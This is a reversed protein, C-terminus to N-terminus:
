RRIGHQRDILSEVRTFETYQKNEVALDLPPKLPQFETPLWDPLRSGTSVVFLLAEFEARLETILEVDPLQGDPSPPMIVLVPDEQNRLQNELIANPQRDSTRIGGIIDSLVAERTRSTETVEVPRWSDDMPWAREGYREATFLVPYAANLAVIGSGHKSSPIGGAAEADVWLCGLYKLLERESDESVVPRIRNLVHHLHKLAHRKDRLLYRALAAAFRESAQKHWPPRDNDDLTNWCDELADASARNRVHSELLNALVQEIREFPTDPFPKVRKRLGILTNAVIENATQVDKVCQDKNIRLIGYLGQELEDPTLEDLLVPILTFDEELERRWTLITAEKQVWLSDHLAAKSFLIVAGHCEALWEDLHRYWDSGPGIDGNQDWLPKYDEEAALKECVQRLLEVNAPTKSSHSVFLKKKRTPM